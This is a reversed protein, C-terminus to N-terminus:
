GSNAILNDLIEETSNPHPAEATLREMFRTYAGTDADPVTSGRATGARELIRCLIDATHRPEEAATALQDMLSRYGNGDDGSSLYVSGSLQELYVVDSLAPEAFRLITVPAGVDAHVGTRLPLIQLTVNPLDSMRMLHELQERMVTSGGVQRRLASEDIVAWLKPADATHLLQQREMRLRVQRDIDQDTATPHGTRIVARAYHATQLLGPVFQVEFTKILYASRELDFLTRLWPPTIDGYEDWWSKENAGYWADLLRRREEPEDVGYLTLLQELEELKPLGAGREMRSIRSLSCPITRAAQELTVQRVRRLERLLTGLVMRHATPTLAPRAPRRVGAPSAAAGAPRGPGRDAAEPERARPDAPPAAEDNATAENRASASRPQGLARQAGTVHYRAATRLWRLAQEQHGLALHELGLAYAEHGLEAQDAQLALAAREEDTLRDISDIIADFGDGSGDPVSQRHQDETSM